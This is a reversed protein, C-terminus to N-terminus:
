QLLACKKQQAVCSMNEAAVSFVEEKAVCFMDETAVSPLDGTLFCVNFMCLSVFSLYSKM